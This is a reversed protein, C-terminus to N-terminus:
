SNYNLKPIGDHGYVGNLIWNGGIIEALKPLLKRPTNNLLNPM